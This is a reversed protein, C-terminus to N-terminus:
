ADVSAAEAPAPAAKGHEPSPWLGRPRALMIGIMALGLILADTGNGLGVCAVLLGLLLGALTGVVGLFIPYAVAGLTRSKMDEAKETFDAM